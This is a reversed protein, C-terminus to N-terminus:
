KKQKIKKGTPNGCGAKIYPITISRITDHAINPQNEQSAQKKKKKLSVPPIGLAWPIPLEPPTFASSYTALIYKMLSSYFICFINWLIIRTFSGKPYVNQKM